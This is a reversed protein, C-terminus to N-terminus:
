QRNKLFHNQTLVISSVLYVFPLDVQNQIIRNVLTLFILSLVANTSQFRVIRLTLILLHFDAVIFSLCLLLGGAALLQLYVSHAQNLVSFGIGFFPDHMWDLYAQQRSLQRIGDSRMLSTGDAFVRTNVTFGVERIDLSIILFLFVLAWISIILYKFKDRSSLLFLGVLAVGVLAGRSGSLLAGFLCLVSVVVRQWNKLDLFDSWALGFTIACIMGFTTTTRALGVTQLFAGDGQTLTLFGSVTSLASGFIFGSLLFSLLKGVSIVLLFTGLTSLLFKVGLISNQASISDAFKTNLINGPAMYRSNMYADSTKAFVELTFVLAISVTLFKLPIPLVQSYRPFFIFCFIVPLYSISMGGVLVGPVALMLGALFIAYKRIKLIKLAVWM